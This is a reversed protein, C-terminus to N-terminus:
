ADRARLIPTDFFTVSDSRFRFVANFTCMKAIRKPGPVWHWFDLMGEHQGGQPSNRPCWSWRFEDTNRELLLALVVGRKQSLV